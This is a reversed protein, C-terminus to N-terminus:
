PNDKIGIIRPIEGAKGVKDEYLIFVGKVGEISMAKHIGSKVARTINNGRVVNGVATAAADAIGANEAFITVADADGFSLAHSFKGSSTAVGIPFHELRFGLHKSLVNNGASLAIDIPMNSIASAEGGDEVVAVKAGTTIMANVTLDALVGAVAAMPGVGAKESANAMKKAVIPGDSLNVPELSYLFIPNQLIYKELQRRHEQIAQKGAEIAKQSDSIIIGITEKYSYTQKILSRMTKM